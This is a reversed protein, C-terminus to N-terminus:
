YEIEVGHQKLFEEVEAETMCHSKSEMLQKGLALIISKEFGPSESITRMDQEFEIGGLEEHLERDRALGSEMHNGFVLKEAAAGAAHILCYDHRDSSDALESKPDHIFRVKPDYIVKVEDIPVFRLLAAIAHGAEHVAVRQAYSLTESPVPEDERLGACRTVETQLDDCLKQMAESTFQQIAHEAFRVVDAKCAEPSVCKLAAAAAIAAMRANGDVRRSVTEVENLLDEAHIQANAARASSEAVEVADNIKHHDDGVLGKVGQQSHRAIRSLVAVTAWRSLKEFDVASDCIHETM